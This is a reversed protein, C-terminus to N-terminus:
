FAVVNTHGLAQLTSRVEAPTKRLETFDYHKPLNLVKLPGSLYAKGWGAMEAVLPHRVDTTGLISQAEHAINWDFVEEVTMIALLENKPNRLAIDRGQRLDQVGQARLTIPMHFLIGNALRMERLVAMYDAKGMFRDLPSFAGIALLELDCMSRSSLQLSSLESAYAILESREEDDVILNVLAGGYPSVLEDFNERREATSSHMM